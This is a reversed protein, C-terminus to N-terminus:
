IVLRMGLRLVKRDALLSEKMVILLLKQIELLLGMQSAKHVDM